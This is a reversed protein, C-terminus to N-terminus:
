HANKERIRKRVTESVKESAYPDGGSMCGIFKAAIARLRAQEAEKAANHQRQEELWQKTLMNLVDALTKGQM